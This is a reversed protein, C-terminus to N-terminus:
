RAAVLVHCCAQEPNGSSRDIAMQFSFGQSGFRLLFFAHSPSKALVATWSLFVCRCCPSGAEASAPPPRSCPIVRLCWLVAAPPTSTLNKLLTKGKHNVVGVGDAVEGSSAM